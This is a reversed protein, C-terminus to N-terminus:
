APWIRRCVIPSQPAHTLKPIWDETWKMQEPYRTKLVPLNKARAEVSTFEYLVLHKAWGSTSLLKRMGVCGPLTSMAEMRWDAYWSLLEDEVEPTGGNFSGLQICAGPTLDGGRAGAEPGDVRAEEAAIVVREGRRMSLMERDASTLDSALKSPAHKTFAEVGKSFAHATEGGFMLVYDNGNPVSPDNTHRIHPPPTVKTNEYHAAWLVGPKKLMKPIYTGELWSLYRERDAAPLDYWTIWIGRDKM